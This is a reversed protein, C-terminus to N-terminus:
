MQDKNNQKSNISVNGGAQIGTSGRSVKQQFFSSQTKDAIFLGILTVLAALLATGSDFGPKIFLWISCSITLLVAIIKTLFKM